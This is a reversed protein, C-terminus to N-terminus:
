TWEGNRMILALEKARDGVQDAWLSDMMEVSARLYDGDRVAKIVKRFRNFRGWGLNFLMNVLVAQRQECLTGFYDTKESLDIICREVDNALMFEAEEISIGTDEINRGYGITAKGATCQYPLLKCGEHRKLMEISNDM